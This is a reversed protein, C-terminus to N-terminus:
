QNQEEQLKRYESERPQLLKIGKEVCWNEHKMMANFREGKTACRRDETDKKAWSLRKGDSDVGMWQCTFLEHADDSNFKRSGYHSSDPKIMLPMVSGRSAMYNATTAM